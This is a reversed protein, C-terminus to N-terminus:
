AAREYHNLLGGLANEIGQHNREPHYHDVFEAIAQRLHRDGLPIMRNLCEEKLSRV